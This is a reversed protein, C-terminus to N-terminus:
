NGAFEMITKYSENDIQLATGTYKSELRANDRKPTPLVHSTYHTVGSFLGWMTQGKASMEKGISNLLDKSRNIAYTSFKDAAATSNLTIDVDTINRVIAAIHTKEVPIESLKIFSDFITKEADAIGNIQRISEEVKEHMSKTHRASEQLAKAAMAFTNGCCITLNVAGWKLATTGDHSNIGTVFGKVTTRNKGLNTIENGTNLQIFIKGGANFQGGSHIGYGTKESIRILLEALESNQYPVYSDKCTSFTQKTDDRVIGYFGTHKGCPLNLPTKTVNWRLGYKDLLAAVAETNDHDTLTLGQTAKNLLDEISENFLNM